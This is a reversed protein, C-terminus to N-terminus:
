SPAPTVAREAVGHGRQPVVALPFKQAAQPAGRPPAVHRPQPVARAPPALNQWLHPMAVLPAVGPRSATLPRALSPIGAARGGPAGGRGAECVVSRVGQSM